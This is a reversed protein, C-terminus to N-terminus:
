LLWGWHLGHTFAVDEVFILTFVRILAYVGVKTLLGSFIASVSAPPAPYSCPLWFYLPFIGAKIGFGALFLAASLTASGGTGGESVVQALQAMNLTGAMGYLIGIGALFLASSILNLAVYKVSGEMQKREGGLALLVFSASM